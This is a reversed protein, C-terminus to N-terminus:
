YTLTSILLPLDLGPISRCMAATNFKSTKDCLGRKCQPELGHLVSAFNIVTNRNYKLKM